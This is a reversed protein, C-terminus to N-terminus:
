RAAVDMGQTVLAAEDTSDFGREFDAAYSVLTTPQLNGV